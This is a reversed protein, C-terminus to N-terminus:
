FSKQSFPGFLTQFNRSRLRFWWKPTKKRTRRCFQSCGVGDLTQCSAIWFIRKGLGLRHRTKLQFVYFKLKRFEKVAAFKFKTNRRTTVVFRNSAAAIDKVTLSVVLIFPYDAVYVFFDCQSDTKCLLFNLIDPHYNLSFGLTPLLQVVVGSCHWLYPSFLPCWIFIIPFERFPPVHM